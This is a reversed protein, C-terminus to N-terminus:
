CLWYERLCVGVLKRIKWNLTKKDLKWYLKKGDQVGQQIKKYFHQLVSKSEAQTLFTVAVWVITTVLVIMPFKAWAPFLGEDGFFYIGLDTFNLLISVIGSVFM